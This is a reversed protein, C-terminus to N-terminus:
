MLWKFPGQSCERLVGHRRGEIWEFPHEEWASTVGAKRFQVFRRVGQAPDVQASSQVAPLGVARNLRDTNSVYPWLQEPSAELDGRWDYQLVRRTDHPPLRPHAVISTPEGRLLRELDLLLAEADPYRDSPRKALAKAVVQSTGESVAPNLKQLL